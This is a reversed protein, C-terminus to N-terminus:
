LAKCAEEIGEVCAFDLLENAKYKDMPGGEGYFLMRGLFYCGVKDKKDCAKKFIDRARTHNKPGGEGLYYDRALAMCGYSYDRNCAISFFERAKVKDVPGEKGESLMLGLEYCSKSKGVCCDHQLKEQKTKYGGFLALVGLIIALIIITETILTFVRRVSRKSIRKMGIVRRMSSNDESVVGTYEIAEKLEELSSNITEMDGDIFMVESKSLVFKIVWNAREAAKLLDPAAQILAASERDTVRAVLKNKDEVDTVRYAEGHKVAVWAHTM